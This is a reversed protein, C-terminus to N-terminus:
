VGAVAYGRPNLRAAVVAAGARADDSRWASGRTWLVLPAPRATGRPVYLDLLHGKGGPPEAPAYAIGTHVLPGATGAAHVVQPHSSGLGVLLAAALAAVSASRHLSM